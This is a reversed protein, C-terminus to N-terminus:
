WVPVPVYRSCATTHFAVFQGTQDLRVAKRGIAEAEIHNADWKIRSPGIVVANTVGDEAQQEIWPVSAGRGAPFETPAAPDPVPGAGDDDTPAAGEGPSGCAGVQLAAVVAASAIVTCRGARQRDSRIEHRM